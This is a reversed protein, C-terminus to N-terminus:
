SNGGFRELWDLRYAAALVLATVGFPLFTLALREAFAGDFVSERVLPWCAPCALALSPTGLAAAFVITPIARRV